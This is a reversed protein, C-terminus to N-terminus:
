FGDVSLLTIKREKQRSKKAMMRTLSAATMKRTDEDDLAIILDGANILGLMPSTAKLSHVAPGNKSTDVVIGIPGSPAFVDYSQANNRLSGLSSEEIRQEMARAGLTYSQVSSPARIALNNEPFDQYKDPVENLGVDSVEVSAESAQTFTRPRRMDHTDGEAHPSLNKQPESRTRPAFIADNRKQQATGFSDRPSFKSRANLFSETSQRGTFVSRGVRNFFSSAASEALSGM